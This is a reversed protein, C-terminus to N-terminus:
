VKDEKILEEARKKLAESVDLSDTMTHEIEQKEVWGRRKGKCKLAFIVCAVNGKQALKHLAQEYFDIQLDDLREYWAVYNPDKRLWLYHTTRDIGTEREAATINGLTKLLAAYFVAKTGKLPKIQDQKM